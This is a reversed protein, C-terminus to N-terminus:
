IIAFTWIGLRGTAKDSEPSSDISITCPPAEIRAVVCCIASKDV